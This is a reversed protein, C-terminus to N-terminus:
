FEEDEYRAINDFRTYQGVFTAEVKGIPGNRQKAIIIEAIGKRDTEPKYVEDRYIFLIVDADQEIGGSERLDAMRPRKDDRNEVGRNLQSLAIVPVELEKALAKMGRSIMAIENTRNEKFGPVQMLQLYDVLILGLDVGNPHAESTQNALERKLRRARSRLENPSLQGDDDIYIPAADLLTMASNIKDWDADDLQGNRLREQNVRGFSSIMRMMLQEGPMELSFVLVAKPNQTDTAVAEAINMAFSTKGMSPRGAVVVLDGPHLGTTKRDLDMLGTTTGAMNGQVISDIRDIVQGLYTSGHQPGSTARRTTEAIELVRREAEDLLESSARGEPTFGFDAIDTGVAILQRYVSRERVIGAYAAVNVASGTDVALTGLYPLGGADELQDRAALWESVTVADRPQDAEVLAEIADWILRHDKRYFDRASVQGSVRDWAEDQLM